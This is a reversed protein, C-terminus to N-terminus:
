FVCTTQYSCIQQKAKDVATDRPDVSLWELKSFTDQMQDNVLPVGARSPTRGGDIALHTSAAQSMSQKDVAFSGGSIGSHSSTFIRMRAQQAQMCNSCLVHESRNLSCQFCTSYLRLPQQTQRQGVSWTEAVLSSTPVDKPDPPECLMSLKEQMMTSSDDLMPQTFAMSDFSCVEDPSPAM